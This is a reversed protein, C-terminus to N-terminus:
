GLHAERRLSERLVFARWRTMVSCAKGAAGGLLPAVEITTTGVSSKRAATSVPPRTPVVVPASGKRDNGPPLTEEDCFPAGARDPQIGRVPAM